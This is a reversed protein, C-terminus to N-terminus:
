IVFYAYCHTLSREFSACHFSCLVPGCIWYFTNVVSHTRVKLFRSLPVVVVSAALFTLVDRGLSNIAEEEMQTELDSVSPITPFASSWSPPNSISVAAKATSLSSSDVAAHHQHWANWAHGVQQPVEALHLTSFVDPLAKLRPNTRFHSSSQSNKRIRSSLPTLLAQGERPNSLLLVAVLVLPFVRRQRFSSEVTLLLPERMTSITTTRTRTDRCCTIILTDIGGHRASSSCEDPESAVVTMTTTAMQGHKCHVPPGTPTQQAQQLLIRALLLTGYFTVFFSPQRM